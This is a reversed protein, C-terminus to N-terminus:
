ILEKLHKDAKNLIMTAMKPNGSFELTRKAQNINNKNDIWWKASDKTEILTNITQQIEHDIQFKGTAKDIDEIIQSRIDEAWKVQKESGNLKLM